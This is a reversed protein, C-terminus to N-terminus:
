EAAWRVLNRLLTQFQKVEYDTQHGLATFAVRTKGGSFTEYIRTWTLPVGQQEVSSVTQYVTADDKVPNTFYLSGVSHWKAPSVDKLIPSDAYKEVNEIESGIADKGHNHYNGGLILHDFEAWIESGEPLTKAKSEFAHCATRLGVLGKGSDIFKKVVALQEKPLALRRIFLVLVDAKDLENINPFNATGHGHITIIDWNNEKGLKEMLPPLLTDAKYHDDSVMVAILPKKSQPPEQSQASFVAVFFLCVAISAIHTFYKM